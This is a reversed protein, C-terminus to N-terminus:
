CTGYRDYNHHVHKEKFYAWTFICVFLVLGVLAILKSILSSYIKAAGKIM